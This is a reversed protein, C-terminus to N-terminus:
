KGEERQADQAQEGSGVKMKAKELIKSWGVKPRDSSEDGVLLGKDELKEIVQDVRKTLYVKVNHGQAERIREVEMRYAAEYINTDAAPPSESIVLSPTDTTAGGPGVELL